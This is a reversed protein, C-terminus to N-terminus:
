SNRWRWAVAFVLLLFILLVIISWEIIRYARGLLERKRNVVTMTERISQFNGFALMKLMDPYATGDSILRQMSVPDATVFLQVSALSRYLFWMGVFVLLLLGLGTFLCLYDLWNSPPLIEDVLFRTTFGLLVLLLSLVGVLRSAKEELFYFRSLEHDIDQESLNHLAELKKIQLDDPM